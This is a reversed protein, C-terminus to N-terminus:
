KRSMAEDGRDANGDSSERQHRIAGADTRPFVLRWGTSLSRSEACFDGSFGLARGESAGPGKRVLRDYQVLMREFRVNFASHFRAGWSKHIEPAGMRRSEGAHHGRGESFNACYLPVVTVRLIPPLLGSGRRPGAATFLYKSVGFLLTVPFFVVV